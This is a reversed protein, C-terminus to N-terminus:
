SNRASGGMNQYTQALNRLDTTIETHNPIIQNQNTVMITLYLLMIKVCHNTKALKKM